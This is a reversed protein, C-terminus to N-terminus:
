QPQGALWGGVGFPTRGHVRWLYYFGGGSDLLFGIGVGAQLPQHGFDINVGALQLVGGVLKLFSETPELVFLVGNRVSDEFRGFVRLGSYEVTDEFNIALKIAKARSVLLGALFGFIRGSGELLGPPAAM